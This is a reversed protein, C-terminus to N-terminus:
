PEGGWVDDAIARVLKLKAVMDKHELKNGEAHSCLVTLVHGSGCATCAGRLDVSRRSAWSSSRRM